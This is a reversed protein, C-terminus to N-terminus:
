TSVDVGYFNLDDIALEAVSAPTASDFRIEGNGPDAM